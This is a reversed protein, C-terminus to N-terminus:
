SRLRETNAASSAMRRMPWHMTPCPATVALMAGVALAAAFLRALVFSLALLLLAPGIGIVISAFPLAVAM